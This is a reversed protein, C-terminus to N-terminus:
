IQENEIDREVSQAEELSLNFFYRLMKLREILDIKEMQAVRCILKPDAGAKYLTGYRSQIIKEYEGLLGKRLEGHIKVRPDSTLEAIRDIKSQYDEFFKQLMEGLNQHFGFATQLRELLIPSAKIEDNGLLGELIKGLSNYNVDVWGYSAM